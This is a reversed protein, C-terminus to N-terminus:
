SERERSVTGEDSESSPRYVPELFRTTNETVSAAGQLRPGPQSSGLAGTASSKSRNTKPQRGSSLSANILKSLQRVLFIDVTLVTLMGFFIIAMSLDGGGVARTLEIAGSILGAFGGLTLLLLTVGIILIPKTLNIAVAEPQESLATSLNAGCRNCYNLEIAYEIGCSPCFM